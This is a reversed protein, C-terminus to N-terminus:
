PTIVPQYEVIIRTNSSYCFILLIQERIVNPRRIKTNLIHYLLKYIPFFSVFPVTNKSAELVDPLPLPKEKQLGPILTKALISFTGLRTQMVYCFRTTLYMIALCPTNGEVSCHRGFSYSKSQMGFILWCNVYFIQIRLDSNSCSLADYVKCM